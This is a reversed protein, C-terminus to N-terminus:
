RAYEEIIEFVIGPSAELDDAVLLESRSHLNRAGTGLDPSPLWAFNVAILGGDTGGRIEIERVAYGAKALARRAPAILEPRTDVADRFNASGTTAEVAVAAGYAEAREARGEISAIQYFASRGESTMPNPLDALRDAFRAAAFHAPVLDKGLLCPHADIGSFVVRARRIALDGM